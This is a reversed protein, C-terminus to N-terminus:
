EKTSIVISDDRWQAVVGAQDAVLDVLQRLTVDAGEVTVITKCLESADPEIKCTRRATRALQTLANEATTRLKKLTFKDNDPDPGSTDALEDLMATAASRHAAVSGTALLWEKRASIRSNSDSKRMAARIATDASGRSYRRQFMGAASAAVPQLTTATATSSPKLGFQALVLTVAVRQDIQKWRTAPWLDHPLPPDVSAQLNGGGAAAAFAESPTTLDNWAVDVLHPEALEDLELISAATQEVWEARGVLLVNAVPMVVCGRQNALKSIAAFVTPGVPGAAVIPATPDVHRDIWFNVDAQDAIRAISDRFPMGDVISTMSASLQAVFPDQASFDDAPTPATLGPISAAFLLLILLRNYRGATTRRKRRRCSAVSVTARCSTMSDTQRRCSAVSRTPRRATQFTLLELQLPIRFYHSYKRMLPYLLPLSSWENVLHGDFFSHLAYGRIATGQPPLGRPSSESMIAACLGFPPHSTSAEMRGGIRPITEDQLELYKGGIPLQILHERPVFFM